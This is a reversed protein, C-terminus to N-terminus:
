IIRKEENKPKQKKAATFTKGETFTGRRKGRRRRFKFLGHALGEEM